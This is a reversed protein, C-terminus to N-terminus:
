LQSCRSALSACELLMPVQGSYRSFTIVHDIFDDFEFPGHQLGIDRANHWDTIYVDHDALLVQATSRLLIAFHGSM